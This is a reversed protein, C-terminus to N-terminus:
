SRVAHSWWVVKGIVDVRNMEGGTYVEPPYENANESYIVLTDDSPREVRKVRAEGDVKLAFIDTRRNGSRQAPKTAIEKNSIDVMVLDGDFIMPIMSDGLARAIKLRTPNLGMEQLWDTRFALQKVVREELNSTGNGASLYADHLEIIAYDEDRIKQHAWYETTAQRAERFAVLEEVSPILMEGAGSLIWDTSLSYTDSLKSLVERSPSRQDLEIFGITAPSIGAKKAFDKQSLGISKRAYLLRAGLTDM